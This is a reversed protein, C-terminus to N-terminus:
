IQIHLSNNRWSLLNIVFDNKTQLNDSKKIKKEDFYIDSEYYASCIYSFVLWHKPVSVHTSM